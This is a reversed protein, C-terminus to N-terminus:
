AKQDRPGHQSKKADPTGLERAKRRIDDLGLQLSPLEAFGTDPTASSAFSRKKGRELLSNFYAPQTNQSSQAAPQQQAQSAGAQPAQQQTQRGLLSFGSSPAPNASSFISTPQQQQQQPATSPGTASAGFLSSGFANAMTTSSAFNQQRTLSV